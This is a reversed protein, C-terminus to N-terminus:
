EVIDGGAAIAEALNLLFSDVEALIRPDPKHMVEELSSPSPSKPSELLEAIYSTSTNSFQGDEVRNIGNRLTEHGVGGLNCGNRM